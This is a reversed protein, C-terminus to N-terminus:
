IQLITEYLEVRFMTKTHQSAKINQTRIYRLPLNYRQTRVDSMMDLETIQEKTNKFM